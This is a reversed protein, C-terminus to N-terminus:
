LERRKSPVPSRPNAAYLDIENQNPMRTKTMVREAGVQVVALALGFLLPTTGRVSTASHLDLLERTHASCRRCHVRGAQPGGSVDGSVGRRASARSMPSPSILSSLRRMLPVKGHLPEGKAAKVEVRDAIHAFVVEPARRRARGM